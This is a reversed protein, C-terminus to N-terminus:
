EAAANKPTEPESYAVKRGRARYALNLREAPTIFLDHSAQGTVAMLRDETCKHDEIVGDSLIHSVSFGRSLLQRGVLLCRHCDLPEQEACMLALRFKHAGEEIRELGRQFGNSCAMKEYDAIGDCFLRQESPRGGLEKGLFVYAVGADKLRERLIDQNFQPLYRSWPSTRVDAIATVGADQLLRLFQEYSHTSHGISFIHKVAALGTLRSCVM